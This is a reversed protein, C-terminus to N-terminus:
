YGFQDPVGAIKKENEAALIYQNEFTQGEQHKVRTLHAFPM